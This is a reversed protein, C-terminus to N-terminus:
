SVRQHTQGEIGLRSYDIKGFSTSDILQGLKMELEIDQFDIRQIFQSSEQRLCSVPKNVIGDHLYVDLQWHLSM